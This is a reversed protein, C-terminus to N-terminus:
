QQEKISVEVHDPIPIDESVKSEGPMDVTKAMGAGSLRRQRQAPSKRRDEIKFDLGVKTLSRHLGASINRSTKSHYVKDLGNKVPKPLMEPRCKYTTYLGGLIVFASVLGILAYLGNQAGAIDTDGTGILSYEEFSIKGDGNSDRKAIWESMYLKILAAENSVSGRTPLVVVKVVERLDSDSWLGDCGTNFRYFALELSGDITFYTLGRNTRPVIRDNGGKKCKDPFFVGPVRGQALYEVTSIRENKDTDAELLFESVWEDRPKEVSRGASIDVISEYLEELESRSWEEDCDLDFYNFVVADSTSSLKTDLDFLGLVLMGSPSSEISVEFNGKPKCKQEGENIGFLYESLTINDNQAPNLADIWESANKWALAPFSSKAAAFATAIDESNWTDSNSSFHMFGATANNEANVFYIDSRSNSYFYVKEETVGPETPASTEGASTPAATTPPQTVIIRETTPASTTYFTPFQTPNSTPIVIVGGSVTRVCCEDTKFQSCSSFDASPECWLRPECFKNVLKCDDDNGPTPPYTPSPTTPRATPASTEIIGYENQLYQELQAISNMANDGFQVDVTFANGIVHFGDICDGALNTKRCLNPMSLSRMDSNGTVTLFGTAKIPGTLLTVSTLAPNDIIKMTDFTGDFTANELVANDKIEVSKISFGSIADLNKIRNEDAISLTPSFFSGIGNLTPIDNRSVALKGVVIVESGGFNQLTTLKTNGVLSIDKAAFRLSSMDINQFENQFFSLDSGVANLQGLDLSTDPSFYLLIKGVVVSLDKLLVDSSSGVAAVKTDSLGSSTFELNGVHIKADQSGGEAFNIYAIYGRFFTKGFPKEEDAPAGVVLTSRMASPIAVGFSAIMKAVGNVYIKVETDAQIVNVYYWVRSELNAGSTTFTSTQTALVIEQGEMSLSVDTGYALIVQDAISHLQFAVGFSSDAGGWTKQMSSFKLFDASGSEDADTNFSLGGNYTLTQVLTSREMSIGTDTCENTASNYSCQTKKVGNLIKMTLCGESQDGKFGDYDSCIAKNHPIFGNVEVVGNGTYSRFNSNGLLIDIFDAHSAAFLLSASAVFLLFFKM